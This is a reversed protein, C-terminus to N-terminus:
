VSNELFYNRAQAVILRTYGCPTRKCISKVRQPIDGRKEAIKGNWIEQARKTISQSSYEDGVIISKTTHYVMDTPWAWNIAIKELLSIKM